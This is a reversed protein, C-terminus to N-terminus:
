KHFKNEQQSKRHRVEAQRKRTAEEHEGSIHAARTDNWPQNAM